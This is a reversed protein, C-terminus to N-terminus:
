PVYSIRKRFDDPNGAVALSSTSSPASCPETARSRRGSELLAGHDIGLLRAALAPDALQHKPQNSMPIILCCM